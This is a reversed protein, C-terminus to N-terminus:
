ASSPMRSLLTDRPSPSTYLLCSNDGIPVVDTHGGFCFNPKEEGFKAYLNDVDPTNNDSFKYRNCKFGIKSLENELFDLVGDTNPTVSQYSILSKTLEIENM